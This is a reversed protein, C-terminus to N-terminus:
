PKCYQGAPCNNPPVGPGIDARAVNPIGLANLFLVTAALALFLRKM